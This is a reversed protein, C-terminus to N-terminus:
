SSFLFGLHLLMKCFIHCDGFVVRFHPSLVPRSPLQSVQLCIAGLGGAKRWPWLCFRSSIVCFKPEVVEDEQPLKSPVRNIGRTKTGLGDRLAADRALCCRPGESSGPLTFTM